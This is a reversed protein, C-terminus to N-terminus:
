LIEYSDPPLVMFTKLEYLAIKLDDAMCELRDQIRRFRHAQMIDASEAKRNIHNGLNQFRSVVLMDLPSSIKCGSTSRVEIPRRWQCRCRSVHGNEFELVTFDELKNEMPKGDLYAIGVGTETDIEFCNKIQVGDGDFVSICPLCTEASLFM